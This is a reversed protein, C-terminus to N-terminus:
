LAEGLQRALDARDLYWCLHQAATVWRTHLTVNYGQATLGAMCAQQAPSPTEGPAKLEIYMGYFGRAPVPLCVDPIGAVVGMAKLRGAAAKSRKGGNPTHHLWALRPEVPLAVKEKWAFLARQEDEEPHARAQTARQALHQQLLAAGQDRWGRDGEVRYGLQRLLGEWTDAM